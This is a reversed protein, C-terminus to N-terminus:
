KKFIENFFIAKSADDSDLPLQIDVDIEWKNNAKKQGSIMGSEVLANDFIWAGSRIFILKAEELTSDQFSFVDADKDIEFQLLESYEDDFTNECQARDFQYTFVLHEGDITNVQYNFNITSDTPILSLESNDTFSFSHQDPLCDKYCSLFLISLGTAFLSIKLYMM